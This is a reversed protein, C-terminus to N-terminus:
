NEIRNKVKKPHPLLASNGRTPTYTNKGLDFIKTGLDFLIM